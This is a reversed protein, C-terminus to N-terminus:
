WITGELWTNFFISHNQLTLALNPIARPHLLRALMHIRSICISFERPPSLPCDCERKASPTTPLPGDWCSM